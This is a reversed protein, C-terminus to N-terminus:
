LSVMANGNTPLGTVTDVCQVESTPCPLDSPIAVCYTWCYIGLQGGSATCFSAGMLQRDDLYRSLLTSAPSAKKQLSTSPSPSQSECAAPLVQKDENNNKGGLFKQSASRFLEYSITSSDLLSSSSSPTLSLSALVSPHVSSSPLLADLPPLFMKGYWARSNSVGGEGVGAVLAHEVAKFSLSSDIHLWDEAGKGMMIVLSDDNFIARAPLGSPLKIYLGPTLDEAGKDNYKNEANPTVDYLGATMAIFLGMDKHFPLTMVDRKAGEGRNGSNSNGSHYSHIHELHSGKEFIEHLTKYPQLLLTSPETSQYSSTGINADIAKMLLATTDDVVNRLEQSEDGCESSMEGRTGDSSTAAGTSLRFTGDSLVSSAVSQSTTQTHLKLHCTGVAKLAKLRSSAYNPIDTIQLAGITTLATIAESAARQSVLSSYSLSPLTYPLAVNSSLSACVTFSLVSIIFFRLSDM